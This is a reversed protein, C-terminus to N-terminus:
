QKQVMRLAASIMNANSQKALEYEESIKMKSSSSITQAADNLERIIGLLKIYM